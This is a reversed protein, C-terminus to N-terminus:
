AHGGVLGIVSTYQELLQRPDADTGTAEWDGSLTVARAGLVAGIRAGERVPRGHLIGSIVGAAFADGAGVPDVVKEVPYPAVRTVRSREHVVVGAAGDKLLVAHMGGRCLLDAADHPDAAPMLTALEDRGALLVDIQPVLDRFEEGAQPGDWLGHRLNADFVVLAGKGAAWRLAARAVGALGDPGGLGLSVGSVTLVHPVPLRGLDVTAPNLRSAASGSRYYYVRRAGDDFREKLFIGTPAAPDVIVQGVDVGQQILTRRVLRGVPDAGVASVLATRHGMRSLAILVNAEAGAIRLRFSGADELPGDRQPDLLGMVEGVALVEPESRACM